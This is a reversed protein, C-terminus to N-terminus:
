KGSKMVAGSRFSITFRDFVHRSDFYALSWIHFFGFSAFFLSFRSISRIFFYSLIIAAIFIVRFISALMSNSPKDLSNLFDCIKSIKSSWRWPLRNVKVIRLTMDINILVISRETMRCMRWSCYIWLAVYISAECNGNWSDHGQWTTEYSVM